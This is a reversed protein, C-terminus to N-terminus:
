KLRTRLFALTRADATEASPKDYWSNGPNAFAHNAEYWHLELPKGLTRMRQEFGEVSAAKVIRDQRGFHGLVPGKLKALDAESREVSGYYVVTADVPTAISANLSWRGGFCWGVTGVSGSCDPNARLWSIWSTAAQEVRAKNLFMMRLMATIFGGGTKGDMLDAAVTLYGHDAYTVALQKFEDTLGKFAHYLVLGPAPLKTPRALVAHVTRGGATTSVAELRSM